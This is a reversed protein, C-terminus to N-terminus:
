GREARRNRAPTAPSSPQVAGNLLLDVFGRVFMGEPIVAGPQDAMLIRSMCYHHLSGVFTRALVEADLPRLAGRAMQSEFYSGLQKIFARFNARNADCPTAGCLNPNSWSMMMLPLATRGIELLTTALKVLADSLDLESLNGLAQMLMQPVANQDHQMAASFLGEKSKFRHFLAGESVGAREAVESTTARIGRELFVERAVQLLKESDITPPRGRKPVQKTNNTPSIAVRRM